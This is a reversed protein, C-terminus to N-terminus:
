AYCFGPTHADSLTGPARPSAWATAERLLVKAKAENCHVRSFTRANECPMLELEIENPFAAGARFNSTDTSLHSTPIHTGTELRRPATAPGSPTAEAKLGAGRARM